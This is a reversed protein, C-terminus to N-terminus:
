SKVSVDYIWRARGKPRDFRLAFRERRARRTASPWRRAIRSPGPAATPNRPETHSRGREGTGLRKIQTVNRDIFMACALHMGM